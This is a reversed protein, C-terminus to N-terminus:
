TLENNEFRSGICYMKLDDETFTNTIDEQNNKKTRYANHETFLFRCLDSLSKWDKSKERWSELSAKEKDSISLKSNTEHFTLEFINMPFLSFVKEFIARSRPMHFGSTVIHISRLNFPICHMTLAAYANGITDLSWSDMLIRSPNVGYKIMHNAMVQCEDVPYGQSDLPPPKHVTGRSLLLFYRCRESMIIAYNLREMVWPPLTEGDIVSGGLVVIADYM